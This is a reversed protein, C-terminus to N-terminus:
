VTILIAGVSDLYQCSQVQYKGITKGVSDTLIVREATFEDMEDRDILVEFSSVRFDTDTTKGQRNDKITKINASIPAGITEAVKIPAGKENFGGGTTEVVQLTGNEIIM